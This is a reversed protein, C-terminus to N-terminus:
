VSEISQQRKKYLGKGFDTAFARRMFSYRGRTWGPREGERLRARRVDTLSAEIRCRKHLRYQFKKTM